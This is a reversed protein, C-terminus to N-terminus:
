SAAPKDDGAAPAEGAGAADAPADGAPTAAAATSGTDLVTVIVLDDDGLATVGKPLTIDRLRIVSQMTMDTIDILIENPINNAAARVEIRDIAADVLGGEQNVAKATGTLHVPVAMTIEVNLDIQMFDVHSVTRKIPDRQMEKVIAPYKKDDVHLELITNSGAAGSLAIRLDRREVTISVPTMGM